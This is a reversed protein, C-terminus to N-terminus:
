DRVGDRAEEGHHAAAGRDDAGAVRARRVTGGGRGHGTADEPSSARGRNGPLDKMVEILRRSGDLERELELIRKRLVGVGEASMGYGGAPPRGRFRPQRLCGVVLGCVAQQSLQWFRIASLGLDKAAEERRRRGLWTALIATATRHAVARQEESAAQWLARVPLPMKRPVQFTLRKLARRSRRPAKETPDPSGSPAAVKATTTESTTAASKAVSM